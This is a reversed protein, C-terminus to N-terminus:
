ADRAKDIQQQLRREVEPWPVARAPDSELDEWRRVIERRWSAAWEADGTAPGVSELLEGALVIREDESLELAAKLLDQSSTSM